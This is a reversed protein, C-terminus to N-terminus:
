RKRKWKFKKKPLNKGAEPYSKLYKRMLAETKRNKNVMGIEHFPLKTKFYGIEYESLWPFFRDYRLEVDKIGNWRVHARMGFCYYLTLGEPDFGYRYPMMVCYGIMLFTGIVIILVSCWRDEPDWAFIAALILVCYVIQWFQLKLNWIKTQM